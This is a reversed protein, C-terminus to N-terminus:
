EEDPITPDNVFWPNWDIDLRVIGDSDILVAKPKLGDGGQDYQHTNENWISITGQINSAEDRNVKDFVVEEVM